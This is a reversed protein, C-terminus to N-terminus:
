GLVPISVVQNETIFPLKNGINSNNQAVSNQKSFTTMHPVLKIEGELKM